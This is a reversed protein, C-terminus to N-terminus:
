AWPHHPVNLATVRPHRRLHRGRGGHGRTAQLRPLLSVTGDDRLWIPGAPWAHHAVATECSPQSAQLLWGEQSAKAPNGHVWGHCRVCLTVLNSFTDGGGQSRMRRHHVHLDRSVGCRACGWLDRERVQERTPGM